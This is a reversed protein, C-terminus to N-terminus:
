CNILNKQLSEIQKTLADNDEKVIKFIVKNESDLQRVKCLDSYLQPIWLNKDDCKDKLDHCINEIIKTIQQQKM